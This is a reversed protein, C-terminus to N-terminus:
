VRVFQPQLWMDLKGGSAIQVDNMDITTASGARERFFVAIRDEARVLERGRARYYRETGNGSIPDSPVWDITTITTGRIKLIQPGHWRGVTGSAALRLGFSVDVDLTGDLDVEVLGMFHWPDIDDIDPNGTPPSVNTLTFADLDHHEVESFNLLFFRHESGVAEWDFEPFDNIDPFSGASIDLKLHRLPPNIAIVEQEGDQNLGIRYSVEEGAYSHVLQNNESDRPTLESFGDTGQNHVTIRRYEGNNQVLERAHPFNLFGPVLERFHITDPVRSTPFLRTVINERVLSSYPVAVGFQGTLPVLYPNGEHGIVEIALTQGVQTIRINGITLQPVTVMPLAQSDSAPTVVINREDLLGRINPINLDGSGTYTFTFGIHTLTDVGNVDQETFGMTGSDFALTFSGETDSWARSNVEAGLDAYDNADGLNSAFGATRQANLWNFLAILRIDSQLDAVTTIEESVSFYRHIQFRTDTIQRVNWHTGLNVTVDEGPLDASQILLGFHLILADIVDQTNLGEFAALARKRGIWIDWGDPDLPNWEGHEALSEPTTGHPYQAVTATVTNNNGDRLGDDSAWIQQLAQFSDDVRNEGALGITLRTQAVDDLICEINSVAWQLTRNFRLSEVSVFRSTSTIM